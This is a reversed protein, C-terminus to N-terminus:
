DVVELALPALVAQNLTSPLEAPVLDLDDIVIEPSRAPPGNPGSELSQQSCNAFLANSCHHREFRRTQGPIAAVPM